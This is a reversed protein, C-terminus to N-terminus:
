NWFQYKAEVRNNVLAMFKQYDFNYKEIPGDIHVFFKGNLREDAIKLDNNLKKLASLYQKKDFSFFRKKLFAYGDEKSARWEITHRRNKLHIGNNINACDYVGCSCSFPAFLNFEPYEISYGNLANHYISFADVYDWEVKQNNLLIQIELVGKGEIQSINELEFVKPTASPLGLQKILVKFEIKDNAM